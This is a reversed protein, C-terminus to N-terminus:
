PTMDRGSREAKMAVTEVAVSEPQVESRGITAPFGGSGAGVLMSAVGVTVGRVDEAGGGVAVARWGPVSLGRSSSPRGM